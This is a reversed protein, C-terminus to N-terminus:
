YLFTWVLLLITNAYISPLHNLSTNLARTLCLIACSVRFLESRCKASCKRLAWRILSIISGLCRSCVGIALVGWSRFIRALCSVPQRRAAWPALTFSVMALPPPPLLYARVGDCNAGDTWAASERRGPPSGAMPADRAIASASRALTVLSTFCVPTHRPPHRRRGRSPSGSLSAVSTRRPRSLAPMKPKKPGM